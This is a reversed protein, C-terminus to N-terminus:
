KLTFSDSGILNGDCYIKVKYNGKIAEEGRLDYFISLDIRENQYDIEKKDSYAVTGNETQIANSTKNQLTKGDPNVVQLYVVKRGAPTIPNESLTFSSKIQVVNRARNTPEPMDNLKMRLGVSTFGYAQLRSGKRVQETKQEAEAKFQDREETTTTLKTTTEDLVSTLKLNLTNLSDIQKVYGKMITRLTENERQMRLLQSASMRKNRNMEDLLSQIKQKQVNLSDAKTKDKAILADYTKLMNKFDTKLDKSMNGVYGSMMDDMGKMDARLLTNKNMCDNLEANKKSWLYAMVGLGALLIMTIMLFAGNSKKGEASNFEEM